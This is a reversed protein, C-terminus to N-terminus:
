YVAPRTCHYESDGKSLVTTSNILYLDSWWISIFSMFQRGSRKLLFVKGFLFLYKGPRIQGRGKRRKHNGKGLYRTDKTRKIMKPVVKQHYIISLHSICVAAILAARSTSKETIVQIDKYFSFQALYLWLLM